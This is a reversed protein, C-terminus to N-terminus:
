KYSYASANRLMSAKPDRTMARFTRAVLAPASQTTTMYRAYTSQADYVLEFNRVMHLHVATQEGAANTPLSHIRLLIMDNQKNLEDIHTFDYNDIPQIYFTHKGLDRLRGTVYSPHNCWSKNIMDQQFEPQLTFGVYDLTRETAVVRVAEFWGNLNESGNICTIRMAASVLRYKDVEANANIDSNLSTDSISKWTTQDVTASDSYYGFNNPQPSLVIHIKGEGSTIQSVHCSRQGISHSVSGDPIKPATCATSFANRTVALNANVSM